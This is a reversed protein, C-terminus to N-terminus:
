ESWEKITWFVAQKRSKKRKRRDYYQTSKQESDQRDLVKELVKRRNELVKKANKLSKKINKTNETKNM